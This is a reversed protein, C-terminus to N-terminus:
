SVPPSDVFLMRTADADMGIQYQSFTSTMRGLNSTAM